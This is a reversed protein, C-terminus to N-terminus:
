IAIALGRLVAAAGRWAVAGVMGRAPVFERVRWEGVAGLAPDCELLHVATPTLSLQLRSLGFAIGRGHAKLIAERACWLRLFARERSLPSLRKLMAVEASPFYREALEVARPVKRPGEIDVGVRRGGNSLALMWLAGAHSISLDCASESPLTPRGHADRQIQDAESLGMRGLIEGALTLSSPQRVAVLERVSQWPQRFLWIAAASKRRLDVYTEIGPASIQSPTRFSLPRM